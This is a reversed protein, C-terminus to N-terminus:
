ARPTTVFSTSFMCPVLRRTRYSDARDNSGSLSVNLVLTGVDNAGDRLAVLRHLHDAALGPEALRVYRQVPELRQANADLVDRGGIVGGEDLREVVM